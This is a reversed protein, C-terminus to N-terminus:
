KKMLKKSKAEKACKEMTLAPHADKDCEFEPAEKELSSLDLKFRYGISQPFYYISNTKPEIGACNKSGCELFRLTRLKNDIKVEIISNEAFKGEKLENYINQAKARGYADFIVLSMMFIFLAIFSVAATNFNSKSKKEYDTDVRRGIFHRQLKVAFRKAKFSGRLHDIWAPLIMHSYLFLVAAILLLLLTIPFGSRVFGDYVIQNFNKTMMEPSLKTVDLYGHYHATSWSFLIATSIALFVASELLRKM